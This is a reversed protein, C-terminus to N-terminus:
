FCIYFDMWAPLETCEPLRVCGIWSKITTRTVQLFSSSGILFSPALTNVTHICQNKLRELAPLETTLPRIQDFNTIDLSIHMDKNGALIFFIWYFFSPAVTSM